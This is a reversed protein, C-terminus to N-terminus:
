QECEEPFTLCDCSEGVEIEAGCEHCEVFRVWQERDPVWTKKANPCGHEHCFTGNIMAASCQDCNM